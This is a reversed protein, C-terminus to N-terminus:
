GGAIVVLPKLGNWGTVVADNYANSATSIVVFNLLLNEVLSEALGYLWGLAGEGFVCLIRVFTGVSM